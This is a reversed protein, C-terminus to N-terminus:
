VAREAGENRVWSDPEITSGLFTFFASHARLVEGVSLVM